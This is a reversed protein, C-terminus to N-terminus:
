HPPFLTRPEGASRDEERCSPAPDSQADVMTFRYPPPWRLLFLTGKPPAGTPTPARLGQHSELLNRRLPTGARLAAEKWDHTLWEEVFNQPSLAM